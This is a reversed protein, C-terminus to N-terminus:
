NVNKVYEELNVKPFRWSKDKGTKTKFLKQPLFTVEFLEEPIVKQVLIGKFHWLVKQIIPFTLGSNNYVGSFKGKVDVISKESGDCVLRGEFHCSDCFIGFAVPTWEIEFDPTYSLSRLITKKTKKGGAKAVLDVYPDCITISETVKKFKKVYGAEKLEKLWLYFHIEEQSDFEIGDEVWQKKKKKAM